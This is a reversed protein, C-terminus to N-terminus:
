MTMRVKMEVAKGVKNVTLRPIEDDVPFVKILVDRSVVVVVLVSVVVVVVVVVVVMVVLMLRMVIIRVKTEGAKDVVLGDNM